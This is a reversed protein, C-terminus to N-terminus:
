LVQISTSGAAATKSLKTWSNTRDGHLSLTGGMMMIGRDSRDTTGGVGSVDEDKVNDTLTITAKRMHPKAETGIELAGHVMIWETTLELDKTDAFSLTGDLTIGHLPPPSVDLIVNMDKAIVVVDDKAPVKKDPWTAPDSWRSAAPSGAKQAHVVAFASVLLLAPLLSALLVSRHHTSVSDVRRVRRHGLVAACPPARTPARSGRVPPSYGIESSGGPRAGSATRRLSSGTELTLRPSSRSLRVAGTFKSCYQRRM